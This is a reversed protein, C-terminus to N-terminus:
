AAMKRGNGEARERIGLMMKREMIFHIPDFVLLRGPSAVDASRSRVLLRTNHDDLPELIFAWVGERARGIREIDEYDKPSVLVLYRDAKAQAVRMCARGGYHQPTTM